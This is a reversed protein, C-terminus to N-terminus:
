LKRENRKIFFTDITKNIEIQNTSEIAKLLYKNENDVKQKFWNENRYINKADNGSSLGTEM